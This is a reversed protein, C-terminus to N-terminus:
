LRNIESRFQLDRKERDNRRTVENRLLALQPNLEEIAPELRCTEYETARSISPPLDSFQPLPREASKLAFIGLPVSPIESDRTEGSSRPHQPAGSRFQLM